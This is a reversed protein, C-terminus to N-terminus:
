KINNAIDHIYGYPNDPCHDMIFKLGRGYEDERSLWGKKREEMNSLGKKESLYLDTWVALGEVLDENTKRAEQFDKDNYEWIHTMEHAIIGFAKDHQYGNEVYFRLYKAKRLEFIDIM